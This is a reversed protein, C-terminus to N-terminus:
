SSSYPVRTDHTARPAPRFTDQPGPATGRYRDRRVITGEGYRTAFHQGDGAPLDTTFLNDECMSHIFTPEIDWSHRPSKRAAPVFFRCGVIRNKRGNGPDAVIAPFSGHEAAEHTGILKVRELTLMNGDIRHFIGFNGASRVELDRLTLDGGGLKGWSTWITGSGTDHRGGEIVAGSWAIIMHRPRGNANSSTCDTLRLSGSVRRIYAAAFAIVNDAFECRLFHADGTKTDIDVGEEFRNPEIDVGFGPAHQRYQGLDFGNGNFRCDTCLLGRVQLPAFGGRANNRCTVKNLVVNRCARAPRIRSFLWDDGLYIGDTQCHHLDLDELVVNSCAQLNILHAHGEKTAPDRTMDRVGGDMELGAIRVNRCQRLTFPMFVAMHVGIPLGNPGVEGTRHFKGNLRIKAGYGSISLGDARFIHPNIVESSDRSRFPTTRYRAVYYVGPPFLYNGGGRQNVHAAWRHFAEYNDTRDDPVFGFAKVVDVLEGASNAPQSFSSSLFFPLLRVSAPALLLGELVRRRIM